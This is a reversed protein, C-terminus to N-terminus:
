VAPAITEFLVTSRYTGPAQNNAMRVGWVLDVRGIAGSVATAAKSATTPLARWPDTDNATCVGPTTVTDETWGAAPDASLGLDQLCVGFMNAGAAGGWNNPAGAYDNVPSGPSTSHVDRSGGLEYAWSADVVTVARPIYAGSVVDTFTAGADQSRRGNGFQNSVLIGTGGPTIDFDFMVTSSDISTWAGGGNTTRHLTNWITLSALYADTASVARVKLPRTASWGAPTATTAWTSGATIRLSTRSDGAAWANTADVGDVSGLSATTGTVLTQWSAGGDTTRISTGADGVAYAVTADVASVERLRETTGSVQTAWTTGGDVTKIVRGNTGVAWAILSTAQDVSLLHETTGSTRTTFNVGSDSSTRVLGAGGVAVLSSGTFAALDNYAATPAPSTANAFTAAGTRRTAATGAGLAWGTTASTPMVITLENASAETLASWTVGSDTTRMVRGLRGVVLIDTASSGQIRGDGPDTGLGMGPIASLTWSVGGDHTQCMRGADDVTWANSADTAYISQFRGGECQMDSAALSSWATGDTTRQVQGCGAVWVVTTSVAHISTSGCDTGVTTTTWTGGANTSKAIVTQNSGNYGAIYVTSTGQVADIANFNLGAGPQSTSGCAPALLCFTPAGTNANTSRYVEGNWSIGMVTSDSTAALGVPHFGLAGVQAWNDGNDTTRWFTEGGRGAFGLAATTGRDASIFQDNADAVPSQRVYTDSGRVMATGTGDTQGIRLMSTDNSSSFDIRCVGAGTVTTAVSAPQVTGFSRASDATCSNTLTTASPIIVTIVV